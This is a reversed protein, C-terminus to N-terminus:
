LLELESVRLEPHTNAERAAVSRVLDGKARRTWDPYKQNVRNYIDQLWGHVDAHVIQLVDAVWKPIRILSPKGHEDVISYNTHM